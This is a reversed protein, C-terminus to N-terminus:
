NIDDVSLPRTGVGGGPNWNQTVFVIANPNHNTRPHDIYTWNSVINAATALHVFVGPGRHAVLVNFAVDDPMAAIDQNFVAWKNEVGDYWVGIPHDNNTNGVGSPNRNQTVLVIANPANNTLPHDITTWNNTISAARAIHVFVSTDVSPILVNFAVGDPM